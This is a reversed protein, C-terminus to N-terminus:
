PVHVDGASKAAEDHADHAADDDGPKLVARVFRRVAEAVHEWSQDDHPALAEPTWPESLHREVAPAVDRDDVSVTAWGSRDRSYDSLADDGAGRVLALRPIPLQSYSIAKSPLLLPDLNGVVVALDFDTAHRVADTWAVRDHFVVRVGSLRRLAGTWDSGFQHFEVDDWLGAGALARLFKAIDVRDSSIEGFHVLRLAGPRRDSTGSSMPAPPSSDAARFGNPQVLIRLEPFLRRLERAQRETTLVAGAANRWLRTEEARGRLRAAGRLEPRLGTLLWPDGVDVVYPTGSETLRRAAAVVPSFPYGILLAGDAESEFTRFRRRTWPEFKDLLVSSHLLKLSRRLASRRIQVADDASGEASPGAILEVSWDTKLAALLERTRIGRPSFPSNALYSVVLLKDDRPGVRATM